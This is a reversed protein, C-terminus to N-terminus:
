RISRILQSLTQPESVDYHRNLDRMDRFVILKDSAVDRYGKGYWIKSGAPIIAPFVRSSHEKAAARSLCSHIGHHIEGYYNGCTDSFLDAHNMNGMVYETGRYPSSYTIGKSRTDVSLGKFVLLNKKTVKCDPWRGPHIIDDVRLCM